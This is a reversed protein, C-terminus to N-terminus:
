PGARLITQYSGAHGYRDNLVAGRWEAWCHASFPRVRVGFVMALRVGQLLAFRGLALTDFLCVRAGPFFPRLREFRENLRRVEAEDVGQLRRMAASRALDTLAIDIRRSAVAARAWFCASFFPAVYRLKLLHREAQIAGIDAVGLPVRDPEALDAAQLQRLVGALRAHGSVDPEQDTAPLAVSLYRDHRLDLLVAARKDIAAHVGPKLEVDGM